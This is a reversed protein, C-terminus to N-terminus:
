STLTTLLDALKIGKMDNEKEQITEAIQNEEITELNEIQCIHGGNKSIIYINNLSSSEDIGNIKVIEGEIKIMDKCRGYWSSRNEIIRYKDGIKIDKINM